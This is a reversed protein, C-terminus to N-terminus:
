IICYREETPWVKLSSRLRIHKNELPKATGRCLPTTVVHRVLLPATNRLLRDRPHRALWFLSRLESKPKVFPSAARRASVPIFARAAIHGATGKADGFAFADTRRQDPAAKWAHSSSSLPAACPKLPDYLGSHRFFGQQARCQCRGGHLSGPVEFRSRQQPLSKVLSFSSSWAILCLMRSSLVPLACRSRRTSGGMLIHVTDRRIFHPWCCM